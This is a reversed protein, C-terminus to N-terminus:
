DRKQRSATELYWRLLRDRMAPPVDLCDDKGLLNEEENPDAVMDYLRLPQGDCRMVLKHTGTRIMVRDNVESFVADRISADPQDLLPVLSEGFGAHESPVGALDLLTPFLDVLNVLARSSVGASRKEPTRIMLPVRAAGEYFVSKNLRGKDCLMEGHDSWFVVLTDDWMGREKMADVISGIWSDIHSIKAYYLARIRGNTEPDIEGLQGERTRQDEAAAAPVWEGPERAPLPPDMEAPDYQAAWDEPPDWPSHPGGFGVFLMLPQEGEYDRVYEVATRGVFDDLTEGPPMPSPWTAQLPGVEARRRYDDRFTELCGVERWHDTMVSDTWQTALPGTVEFVEDFGLADFYDTHRALHDDGVHPYYHSKGVHCTRYGAQRLRRALTDTEPPLCGYNTWQGHNHCYLGSLFSSRAPQCVPSPTYANDFRVGEAAIRDLNPTRVIPHGACGLCDARHQDPMLILIHPREPM